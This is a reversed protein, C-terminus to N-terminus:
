PEMSMVWVTIYATIVSAIVSAVLPFLLGTLVKDAWRSVARLFRKAPTNSRLQDLHKHGQMTLQLGAYGNSFASGKSLGTEVLHRLYSPRIFANPQASVLAGIGTQIKREPGYGHRVIRQRGDPLREQAFQGILAEVEAELATALM